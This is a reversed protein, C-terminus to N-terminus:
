WRAKWPRTDVHVFPGHGATSGYIGLGGIFGTLEPSKALSELVGALAVADDKSVVKDKNFDDMMGDEDKDLFIDAARGWQHLSYTTDDLQKNYFPTRYGSMVFIDDADWGRSELHRGIAELVFVLREDLVVYKPFGSKQKTLFQKIRFNESVKTDENDRTVEIFGNPPDYIPNGKLPIKPYLGIQYDNLVGDRVQASPVMVFATFDARTHGGANKVKIKYSGPKAPAEWMWRNPGTATLGGQPADVTYLRTAPASVALPIKEGPMAFIAGEDYPYTLTRVRLRDGQTPEDAAAGVLCFVLASLLSSLKVARRCGSM